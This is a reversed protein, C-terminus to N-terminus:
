ESGKDLQNREMVACTKKFFVIGFKRVSDYKEKLEYDYNNREIQDLAEICEKKRVSARTSESIKFEMIVAASISDDMIALDFYGNGAERNSKLEKPSGATIGLVGIMFGHYFGESGFDRVSIFALLMKSIIESVKLANGNFLNERLDQSMSYWEPNSDSFLTEIKDSFCELVEKNPIKVVSRNRASPVADKAVTLYGTHLM